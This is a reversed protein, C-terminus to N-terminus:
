FQFTNTIHNIVRLGYGSGMKGLQDATLAIWRHDGSQVNSIVGAVLSQACLGIGNGRNRLSQGMEVISQRCSEGKSERNKYATSKALAREVGCLAGELQALTEEVPAFGVEAELKQRLIPRSGGLKPQAGELKPSRARPKGRDPPNM